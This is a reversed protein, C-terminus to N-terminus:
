YQNGYGYQQDQAGYQQEQAGYQQEQNYAQENQQVGGQDEVGGSLVEKLEVKFFLTSGGPVRGDPTGEAGYAQEPPIGIMATEGEHMHTIAEAWGPIVGALAFTVPEGDLTSDFVTGDALTGHYHVKITSDKTPRTGQGPGYPGFQTVDLVAGNELTYTEQRDSMEQLM